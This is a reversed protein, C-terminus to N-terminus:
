ANQVTTSLPEHLLSGLFETVEGDRAERVNGADDVAFRTRRSDVVPRGTEDESIRTESISFFRLRGHETCIMPMSDM